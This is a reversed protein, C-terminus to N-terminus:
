RLLGARATTRLAAYISDALAQGVTAANESAHVNTDRGAMAIGAVAGNVIVHVTLRGDGPPYTPWVPRLSVRAHRPVTLPVDALSWREM